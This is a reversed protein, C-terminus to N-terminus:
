NTLVTYSIIQNNKRKIKMQGLYEQKDNYVETVITSYGVFEKVSTDDVRTSTCDGRPKKQYDTGLRYLIAWGDRVGVCEYPEDNETMYHFLYYKGSEIM